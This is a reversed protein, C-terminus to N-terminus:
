MLQCEAGQRRRSCRARTAKNEPDGNAARHLGALRVGHVVSAIDTKVDDPIAIRTRAQLERRRRVEGM